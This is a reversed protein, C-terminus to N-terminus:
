RMGQSNEVTSRVNRMLSTRVLAVVYTKNLVFLFIELNDDFVGKMQAMVILTYSCLLM